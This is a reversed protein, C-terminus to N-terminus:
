RGEPPSRWQLAFYNGVAEATGPRKMAGGPAVEMAASWGAAAAGHIGQKM